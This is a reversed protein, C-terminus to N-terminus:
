PRNTVEEIIRQVADFDGARCFIRSMSAAQYPSLSAAASTAHLGAEHLRVLVMQGQVVGMYGAEVITDDAVTPAEGHSLLRWFWERVSSM